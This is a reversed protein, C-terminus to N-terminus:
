EKGPEKPEELCVDSQIKCCINSAIVFEPRKGGTSYVQNPSVTSFSPSSPHLFLPYHFFAPFCSSPFVQAEANICISPLNLSYVLM